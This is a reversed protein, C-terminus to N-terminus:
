ASAQRACARRMCSVMGTPRGDAHLVFSCGVCFHLPLPHPLPAPLTSGPFGRKGPQLLSSVAMCPWALLALQLVLM